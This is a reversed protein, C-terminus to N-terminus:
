SQPPTDLEILIITGGEGAMARWTIPTNEHARAWRAMDSKYLLETTM